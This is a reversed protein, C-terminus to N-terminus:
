AAPSYGPFLRECERHFDPNPVHGESDQSLASKIRALYSMRLKGKNKVDIAGRDEFEFLDKVRNMAAESVNIRGGAGAAEMRSAVNVADGWVDYAFKRQGVM